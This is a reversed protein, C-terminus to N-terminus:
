AIRITALHVSLLGVLQKIPQAGGLEVGDDLQEFDHDAVLVALFQSRFVAAGDGNRPVVEPLVRFTANRELLHDGLAAVRHVLDAPVLTLLPPSRRRAAM